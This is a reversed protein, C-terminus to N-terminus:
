VSDRDSLQIKRFSPACNLYIVSILSLGIHLSNYLSKRLSLPEFTFFPFIDDSIDLIVIVIYVISKYIYVYM